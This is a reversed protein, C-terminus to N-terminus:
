MSRAFLFRVVNPADRIEEDLHEAITDDVFLAVGESACVIEAKSRPRAVRHVPVGRLGKDDLFQRIEDVHTNRTVVHVRGADVYQSMVGVLEEDISHNGRLPSGGRTSCLTRDFDVCLWEPRLSAVLAAVDAGDGQHFRCAECSWRDCLLCRSAHVCWSHPGCSKGFPCRGERRVRHECGLCVGDRVWTPAHRLGCHTCPPAARKGNTRAGGDSASAVAAMWEPWGDAEVRRVMEAAHVDSLRRPTDFLRALADFGKPAFHVCGVRADDADAGIFLVKADTNEVAIAKLWHWVIALSARLGSLTCAHKRAMVKARLSPHGLKVFAASVGGDPADNAVPEWTKDTCGGATTIDAHADAEAKAAEAAQVVITECAESAHLVAGMVKAVRRSEAAVLLAKAGGRAILICRVAWVAGTELHLTELESLLEAWGCGDEPELSRVAEAAEELIDDLVRGIETRPAGKASPAGVAACAEKLMRWSKLAEPLAESLLGACRYHNFPQGNEPAAHEKSRWAEAPRADPHRPVCCVAKIFRRGDLLGSTAGETTGLADSLTCYPEPRMYGRGGDCANRKAYDAPPERYFTALRRLDHSLVVSNQYIGLLVKKYNVLNDRCVMAARVGHCELTAEVTCLDTPSLAAQLDRELHDWGVAFLALELTDADLPCPGSLASFKERLRAMAEPPPVAPAQPAATTRTDEAIASSQSIQQTRRRWVLIGALVIAAATTVTAVHTPLLSTM